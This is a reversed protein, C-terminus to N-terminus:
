GCLYQKYQCWACNTAQKSNLFEFVQRNPEKPFIQPLPACCVM